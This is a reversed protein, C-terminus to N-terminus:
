KIIEKWIVHFCKDLTEAFRNGKSDRAYARMWKAPIFQVCLIEDKMLLDTNPVHFCQMAKYNVFEYMWNLNNKLPFFGVIAITQILVMVNGTQRENPALSPLHKFSIFSKM